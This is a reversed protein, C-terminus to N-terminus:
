TLARPLDPNIAPRVILRVGPEYGLLTVTSGRKFVQPAPTRLVRCGPYDTDLSFEIVYDEDTENSITIV